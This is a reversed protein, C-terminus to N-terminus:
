SHNPTVTLQTTVRKKGIELIAEARGLLIGTILWLWPAISANPIQDIMIVGILLAHACLLGMENKTKLLKFSAIARFVSMALLGFEAVFGLWGFQGFTIIWRGDTITIDQGTQESYLRNRGWTGWGFFFRKRAHDLLVHENDFRVGLSQARDADMSVAWDMLTQHPFLNFISLTPYLLALLVLIRAVRLQIKFSTLKILLFASFGYIISGVSKCLLLVLLFYYTVGAPSFRRVKIKLQWFVSAAIVIVVAFFSVLLGHGMFVVPRFGGFRMQQGFSHPFYGYIWTHLQPSMRVEFLMLLSYFLGAVILVRFMELQDEHTRFLQRGLFFPAILILQNVVTTFADYHTIAPLLHGGVVFADGNLEATVFPGVIFLILLWRVVGRQGFIPIRKKAVFRCGIFASLAPISEKGLPPIMPLDVANGVPLLMHGGIIAWLTAAVPSKSRYLALTIVPWLFLAIYSFWNPIAVM